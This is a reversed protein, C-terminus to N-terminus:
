LCGPMLKMAGASLVSACLVSACTFYRVKRQTEASIRNVDRPAAVRHVRQERRPVLGAGSVPQESERNCFHM